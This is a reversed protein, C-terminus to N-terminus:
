RGSASLTSDLLIGNAYYLGTESSPLIDYTYSGEWGVLETLVVRSNDLRDGALIAGLRRGDALPHGPSALLERGDDLVLHVMRHGVPVRVRATRLIPAAVRAGSNDLTWVLMGVKLDKVALEGDPTAIRTGGDLCIPCTNFSTEESEIEIRGARDITGVLLSGAEGESIRMEFRYGEGMPSMNIATLRKHERYAALLQEASLGTPGLLGLQRLISQLEEGSKDAQDFWASALDSEDARAVPYYDPDCFFPEGLRDILFYKIETASLGPGIPPPTPSPSGPLATPAPQGPLIAELTSCGALGAAGCALLGIAVAGLRSM